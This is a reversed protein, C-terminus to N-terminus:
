AQKYNRCSQKSGKEKKKKLEEKRTTQLKYRQKNTQIKSKKEQKKKNKNKIEKPKTKNQKAKRKKGGPIFTHIYTISHPNMVLCHPKQILFITDLKMVKQKKLEEKARPNATQLNTQKTINKKREELYIYIYTHQPHSNTVLHHPKQIVSIQM